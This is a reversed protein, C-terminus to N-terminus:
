DQKLRLTARHLAPFWHQQVPTHVGTPAFLGDGRQGPLQQHVQPTPAGAPGRRLFQAPDHHGGGSARCRGDLELPFRDPQIPGWWWAHFQSVSKSVSRQEGGGQSPSGGQGNSLNPASTEEGSSCAYTMTPPNPRWGIRDPYCTTRRSFGGDAVLLFVYEWGWELGHGALGASRAWRLILGGLFWCGSFVAKLYFDLFVM